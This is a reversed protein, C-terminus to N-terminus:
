FSFFMPKQWLEMLYVWNSHSIFPVKSSEQRFKLLMTPNFKQVQTWMCIKSSLGTEHKLHTGAITGYPSISINVTEFLLVDKNVASNVM